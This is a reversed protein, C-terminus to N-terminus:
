VTERSHLASDLATECYITHGQSKLYFVAVNGIPAAYVRRPRTEGHLTVMYRTPRESYDGNYTTLTIQRANQRLNGGAEFTDYFAGSWVSIQETLETIREGVVGFMQM